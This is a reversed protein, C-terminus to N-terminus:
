DKPTTERPTFTTASQQIGLGKNHESALVKKKNAAKIAAMKSLDPKEGKKAKRCKRVAGPIVSGTKACM